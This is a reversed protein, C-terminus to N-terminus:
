KYSKESFRLFLDVDMQGEVYYEVLDRLDFVTDCSNYNTRGTNEPGFGDVLAAFTFPANEPYYKRFSKLTDSFVIRSSIDAFSPGGFESLNNWLLPADLSHGNHSNLRIKDNPGCLGSLWNIFDVIAQGILILHYYL